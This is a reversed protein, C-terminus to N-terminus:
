KLIERTTEQSNDMRKIWGWVETRAKKYAEPTPFLEMLKAQLQAPHGLQADKAMPSRALERLSCAGCNANVSGSTWPHDAAENCATCTM